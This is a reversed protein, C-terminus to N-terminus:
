STGAGSSGEMRARASSTGVGGVKSASGLAFLSSSLDPPGARGRALRSSAPLSSPSRLNGLHSLSPGLALANKRIVGGVFSVQASRPGEAEMSYCAIYAFCSLYVCFRTCNPEKRRNGLVYIM